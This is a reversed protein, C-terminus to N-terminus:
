PAPPGAAGCLGTTYWPLTLAGPHNIMCVTDGARVRYYLYSSVDVWGPQLRGGVAALKLQYRCSRGCSRSQDIVEVPVTVGPSTDFQIDALSTAAYGYVAGCVTALLVLSNPRALAQRDKLTWTTALMALGAFAAPFLPWLPEVQAHFTNAVLLLGFPAALGYNVTRRSIGNRRQSIEFSLPSQLLLAMVVLPLILLVLAVWPNPKYQDLFSLVCSIGSLGYGTWAVALSGSTSWASMDLASADAGDIRFVAPAPPEQGAGRGPPSSGEPHPQDTRHGFTSSM